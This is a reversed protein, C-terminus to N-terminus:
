GAKVSELEKRLRKQKGILNYIYIILIIWVVAHGWFLYDLRLPRSEVVVDDIWVKGSGEVVLNLTVNEPNGGKDIYLVTEATAWDTTGAPPIRPGRSILEEGDPFLAKMEIFAIGRAGDVAKLDQTRLRARYVLRTNDFDNEPLNFLGITVPEQTDVTLSGNGDSTIESDIEAGRRTIIENIDSVPFRIYHADRDSSDYCGALISLATVAFIFLSVRIMSTQDHM